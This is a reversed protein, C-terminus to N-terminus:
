LDDSIQVIDTPLVRPWYYCFVENIYFDDSGRIHIFKVLASGDVWLDAIM